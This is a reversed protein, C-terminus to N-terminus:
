LGGIDLSLSLSFSLSLVRLYAVVQETCFVPQAGSVCFHFGNFHRLIIGAHKAKEHSSLPNKGKVLIRDLFLTVEGASLGCLLQTEQNFTWDRGINFGSTLAHAVFPLM